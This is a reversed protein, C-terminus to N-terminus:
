GVKDANGGALRFKRVEARFFSKVTEWDMSKTLLPVEEVADEFYCLAKLLVIRDFKNQPYKEKMLNFLEPLDLGTQCIAYLDIFDKRLGRQQIAMIKMLAIDKLSALNIGLLRNTELVKYQYEFFSVQIGNVLIHLTGPAIEAAEVQMNRSLAQIIKDTNLPIDGFFDLDVSLRHGVQLNLATGGALYFDKVSENKGLAALLRRQAAGLSTDM